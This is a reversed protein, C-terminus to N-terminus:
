MLSEIIQLVDRMSKVIFDAKEGWKEQEDKNECFLITKTGAHHGCLVDDVFDGVMVKLFNILINNKM